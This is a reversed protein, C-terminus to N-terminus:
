EPQEQQYCGGLGDGEALKKAVDRAEVFVEKQDHRGPRHCMLVKPPDNKGAVALNSSTVALSAFAITAYIFRKM